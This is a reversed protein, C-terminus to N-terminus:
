VICAQNEFHIFLSLHVCLCSFLCYTFSHVVYFDTINLHLCEDNDGPVLSGWCAGVHGMERGDYKDQQNIPWAEESNM